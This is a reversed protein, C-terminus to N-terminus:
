IKISKQGLFPPPRILTKPLRWLWLILSWNLLKPCYFPGLGLHFLGELDRCSILQTGGPDGVPILFAMRQGIQGVPGIPICFHHIQLGIPNSRTIRVKIRQGGNNAMTREWFRRWPSIKTHKTRLWGCVVLFFFFAEEPDRKCIYIQRRDTLSLCHLRALRVRSFRLM